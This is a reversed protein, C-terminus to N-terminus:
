FWSLQYPLLVPTIKPTCKLNQRNDFTPNPQIFSLRGIRNISSLALAEEFIALQHTKGDNEAKM